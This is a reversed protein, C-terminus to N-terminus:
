NRVVVSVTPPISPVYQFPPSVLHIRAASLVLDRVPTDDSLQRGAQILTQHHRALGTMAQIQIKLEHLTANEDIVVLLDDGRHAHIAVTLPHVRGPVPRPFVTEGPSPLDEVQCAELHVMQLAPLFDRALM